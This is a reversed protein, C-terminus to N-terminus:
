YEDYDGTEHEEDYDAGIGDENDNDDNPAARAIVIPDCETYWIRKTPDFGGDGAAVWEEGRVAMYLDRLKQATKAYQVIVTSGQYRERITV